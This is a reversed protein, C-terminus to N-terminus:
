HAVTGLFRQFYKKLENLAARLEAALGPPSKPAEAGKCFETQEDPFSAFYKQGDLMREVRPHVRFDYSQHSYANFRALM